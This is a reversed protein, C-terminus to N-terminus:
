AQAAQAAWSQLLAQQLRRASQAWARGGAPQEEGSAQAVARKETDASFIAFALQRGDPLTLYGALASVFNLTGTKARIVAPPNPLPDGGSDLMPINKMLDRLAGAAVDPAGRAAVLLADLMADGSIRSEGALGSHDVLAMDIGLVEAAWANMMAASQALTEPRAAGTNAARVMSAALGILEATSNTSYDLMDRIVVDLDPSEVRAIETAAPLSDIVQGAPVRIGEVALLTRMVDGAYLAPRRVPMWRSGGNGLAQSAVTWHDRGERDAYTFVPVARDIVQVRAMDVLPMRTGSRADMTTTWGAGQARWEFHVRNFNLNLGSLSPNYGLHDLQMPDIEHIRPLALDWMLFRGTIGTVGAAKALQALRAFDDTGIVPDGGGALILDGQVQGGVVPGTAMLRTAFRHEAGLHARAYLATMAKAVSAPALAQAPGVADIVRGTAVDAVICAVQGSLGAAAVLDAAKPPAVSGPRPQPREATLPARALAPGSLVPVALTSLLGALLARRNVHMNM